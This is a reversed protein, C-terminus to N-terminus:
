LQRFFLSVVLIIILFYSFVSLFTLSLDCLEVCSDQIKVIGLGGVVLQPCDKIHARRGEQGGGMTTLRNHGTLAAQQVAVQGQLGERTCTVVVM